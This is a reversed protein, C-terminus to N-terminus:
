CTSKEEKFPLYVKEVPSILLTISEGNRVGHFMKHRCARCFGDEDVFVGPAFDTFYMWSRDCIGQKEMSRVVSEYTGDPVHIQLKEQENVHYWDPEESSALLWKVCYRPSVDKWAMDM